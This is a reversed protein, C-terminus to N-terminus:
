TQNEWSLEKVNVRRTWFQKGGNRYITYKCERGVRRAGRKEGLIPKMKNNGAWVKLEVVHNPKLLQATAFGKESFMIFSRPETVCMFVWLCCAPRWGRVLCLSLALLLKNVAQKGFPM